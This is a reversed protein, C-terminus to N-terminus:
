NLASAIASTISSADLGYARRLYAQDGVVTTFAPPLGLRKFRTPVKGAELLLESVASGLGGIVSHEELTFVAGTRAASLVADDDLPKITHISLVMASLGQDALRSAAELAVGLLGGTALIALDTGARALRARGIAIPASDVVDLQEGARDIRMYAPGPTTTLLETAAATEVADNPALVTLNPIARAIALDETAHHSVGLAGYALGGGVAVVKVDANHYCVDNRLQELCRLIPFNAISYTFVVRGTLALGTAMGTMNQEAIGANIFQRPLENKFRTVVGFGLDGVVLTVRPDAVALEYLREIFATRMSVVPGNAQM